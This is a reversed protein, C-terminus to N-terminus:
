VCVCVCVFLLGFALAGSWSISVLGGLLMRQKESVNQLINRKTGILQLRKKRDLEYDSEDMDSFAENRDTPGRSELQDNVGKPALM